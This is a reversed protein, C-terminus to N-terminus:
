RSVGDPAIEIVGTDPYVAEAGPTFLLRAEFRVRGPLVGGKGADASEQFRRSIDHIRLTRPAETGDALLPEVIIASVGSQTAELTLSVGPDRLWYTLELDMRQGVRAELDIPLRWADFDTPERFELDFVEALGSETLGIEHARISRTACGGTRRAMAAAPDSYEVAATTDGKEDSIRLGYVTLRIDRQGKLPPVTEDSIRGAAFISRRGPVAFSPAGDATVVYTAPSDPAVSEAAIVTRPYLFYGALSRREIFYGTKGGTPFLVVADEPTREGIFRMFRSFENWRFDVKSDYALFPNAVMRQIVSLNETLFSRVSAALLLVILMGTLALRAGRVVSM